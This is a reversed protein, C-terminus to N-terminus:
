VEMGASIAAAVEPHDWYTSHTWLGTSALHPISVDVPASGDHLLYLRSAAFALVDMPEWLNTWRRLSAPLRVPKAGDYPDLRGGRPDCVHFLASQSGFTLLTDTWLPQESTAMDVAIVGGLSHAVIRAPRDPSQGIAPDVAAITERVRTQIAAQHRQYVLVDGIFRTTGPGIRSRLARNMRRGAAQIAAGAVLDLDRLRARVLDRLRTSEDGPGRLEFQGEYMDLETLMDALAAGVKRLLDPDTTRSLCRTHPWLEAVMELLDRTDPAGGPGRLGDDSPQTHERAGAEVEALQLGLDVRGPPEPVDGFTGEDAWPGMPTDADADSDRLRGPLEPLTIDFYTDDAGLDGWYVPTLPLGSSQELRSVAAHFGDRDRNGVGHIVFVPETM